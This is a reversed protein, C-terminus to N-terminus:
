NFWPLFAAALIAGFLIVIGLTIATDMWDRHKIM